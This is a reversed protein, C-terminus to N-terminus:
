DAKFFNSIRDKDMSGPFFGWFVIINKEGAAVPLGSHLETSLFLLVRGTKPSCKYDLDPFSTEGDSFNDNLYIIVTFARQSNGKHTDTHPTFVGGVPYRVIEEGGFENFDLGFEQSAFRSVQRQIRNLCESTKPKTLMDLERFRMRQSNRQTIDIIGIIDNIGSETKQSVAIKAQKWPQIGSFESLIDECIEASLMDAEFVSPAVEEFIGGEIIEIKSSM